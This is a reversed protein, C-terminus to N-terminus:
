SQNVWVLKDTDYGIQRAMDLYKVRIDPPIEKTRSLIWLYSTSSGAVLAYHYDDDISLVNYAAYFPGFFSVELAGVNDQGQFRAVGDARSWAGTKLNRGRNVVGIRGGDRLSYEATTHDLDKEFVFDLRAIEYWTGLYKAKDFPTVAVGGKPITACGALLALLGVLAVPTFRGIGTKM